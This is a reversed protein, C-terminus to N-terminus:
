SFPALRIKMQQKLVTRKSLAILEMTEPKASSEAPNGIRLASKDSGEALKGGFDWM